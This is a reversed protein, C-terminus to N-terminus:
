QVSGAAAVAVTEPQPVKPEYPALIQVSYACGGLPTKEGHNRQMLRFEFRDGVKAHPPPQVALYATTTTGPHLELARVEAVSEHGAVLMPQGVSHELMDLM